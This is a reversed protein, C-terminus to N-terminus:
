RAYTVRGEKRPAAPKEGEDAAYGLVCHGIGQWTGKVGWKELLDRGEDSAFEERARHVWCSSIGLAHAANMLNGMVLAGDEVHTPVEPDALVVIVTKAGYFPDSEVGMIKANMRSLQAIDDPNTVVVLHTAQRGMGSPAYLGAEVVQELKEPEVAKNTFKRCSRRQELAEIVENM